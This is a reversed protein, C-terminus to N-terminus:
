KIGSLLTIITNKSAPPSPNLSSGEVEINLCLLIHAVPKRCLGWGHGLLSVNDELNMGSIHTSLMHQKEEQRHAVTLTHTNTFIITHNLPVTSHLALSKGPGILFVNAKKWVFVRVQCVVAQTNCKTANTWFWFYDFIYLEFSSQWDNLLYLVDLVCASIDSFHQFHFYAM